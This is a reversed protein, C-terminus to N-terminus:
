RGTQVIGADTCEGWPDWGGDDCVYLDQCGCCDLSNVCELGTGLPCDPQELEICGPGGFAGPPADINADFTPAAEASADIAHFAADPSYGPCDQVFVWSGNQCEYVSACCPDSCVAAGNDVPCAPAALEPCAAPPPTGNCGIVVLAFALAARLTM